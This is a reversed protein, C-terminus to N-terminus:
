CGELQPTHYAGLLAYEQHKLGRTHQTQVYKNDNKHSKQVYPTNKYTEPLVHLYPTNQRWPHGL